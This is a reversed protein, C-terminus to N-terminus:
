NQKRRSKPSTLALDILFLYSQLDKSLKRVEMSGLCALVSSAVKMLRYMTRVLGYMEM